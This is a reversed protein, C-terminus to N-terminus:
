NRGRTHDNIEVLDTLELVVIAAPADVPTDDNPELWDVIEAIRDQPSHRRLARMLEAHMRDHTESLPETSDQPALLYAVIMVRRVVYEYPAAGGMETSRRPRDVDVIIDGPGYQVDEDAFRANVVNADFSYGNGVTISRLRDVLRRVSLSYVPLGAVPM